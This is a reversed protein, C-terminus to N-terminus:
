ALDPRSSQFSRMSDCSAVRRVAVGTARSPMTKTGAAEQSSVSAISGLYGHQVNRPLTVASRAFSPETTHFVYITSGGMRVPVLLAPAGCYPGDPAPMQDVGVISVLRPMM